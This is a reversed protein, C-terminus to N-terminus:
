KKSGYKKYTKKIYALGLVCADFMNIWYFDKSNWLIRKKTPVYQALEPYLFAVYKAVKMKTPQSDNSISKMANRLSFEFVKIKKKRTIPKLHRILKILIPNNKQEPHTLKGLILVHPKFNDLLNLVPNKKKTVIKIANNEKRLNKVGYRILEEGEFVTYGTEKIGPNISLIRKPKYSKNM